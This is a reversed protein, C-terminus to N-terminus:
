KSDAEAPALSLRAYCPQIERSSKGPELENGTAAKSLKAARPSDVVSVM